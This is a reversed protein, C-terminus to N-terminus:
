KWNMLAKLELLVAGPENDIREQSIGTKGVIWKEATTKSSFNMKHQVYKILVDKSVTDQLVQSGREEVVVKIDAEAKVVSTTPPPTQIKTTKVDKAGKLIIEAESIQTLSQLLQYFAKSRVKIQEMEATGSVIPNSSKNLLAITLETARNLATQAQISRNQAEALQRIQLLEEKSKGYSQRQAKKEVSIVAKGNVYIMDLRPSDEPSKGPTLDIEIEIESGVKCYDKLQPIFCVYRKLATDEFTFYQRGAKSTIIDSVSSISVKESM